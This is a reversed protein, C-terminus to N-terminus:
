QRSLRTTSLSYIKKVFREIRHKFPPALCSLINLQEWGPITSCKAYAGTWWSLFECDRLLTTLKNGRLARTSYWHFIAASLSSDLYRERWRNACLSSTFAISM